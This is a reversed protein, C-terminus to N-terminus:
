FIGLMDDVKPVVPSKLIYNFYLKSTTLKVSRLYARLTKIRIWSVYIFSVVCHLLVAILSWLFIHEM